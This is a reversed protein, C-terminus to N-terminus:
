ACKPCLGVLELRHSLDKYGLQILIKEQSEVLCFDVSNVRLCKRCKIHHKHHHDSEAVEYFKADGFIDSNRIIGVECLIALTRYVSAQDCSQNKTRSITSYLKESSFPKDKFALIADIVASRASTLKYGAGKLVGLIRDKKM